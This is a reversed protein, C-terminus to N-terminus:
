ELGLPGIQRVDDGCIERVLDLAQQADMPVLPHVMLYTPTPPQHPGVDITCIAGQLLRAGQRRYFGFRRQSWMRREDSPMDEPREVNFIMAKTGAALRHVIEQYLWAGVGRNRAQPVVALYWLFVVDLEVMDLYAAMGILSGERDLAAVLHRHQGEGRERGRLMDLFSAVTMRENPPFATEYLNLWPLLLDDRRDAIEVLSLPYVGDPPYVDDPPETPFDRATM